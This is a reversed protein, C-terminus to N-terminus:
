DGLLAIIDETDKEKNPNLGAAKIIKLKSQWEDIYAQIRAEHGIPKRKPEDPLGQAAKKAKLRRLNERFHTNYCPKCRQYRAYASPREKCAACIIGELLFNTM